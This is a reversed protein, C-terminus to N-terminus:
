IGPVSQYFLDYQKLTNLHSLDFNNVVQQHDNNSTVTKNKKYLASLFYNFNCKMKSPHFTVIKQPKIMKVPSFYWYWSIIIIIFYNSHQQLIDNKKNKINKGKLPSRYRVGTRRWTTDTDRFNYLSHPKGTYCTMGTFSDIKM